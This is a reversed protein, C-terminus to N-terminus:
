LLVMWASPANEFMTTKSIAVSHRTRRRKMWRFHNMKLSETSTAAKVTENKVREPSDLTEYNAVSNDLAHRTLQSM